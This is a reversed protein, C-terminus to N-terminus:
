FSEWEDDEKSPKPKVVNTPESKVVKQVTPKSTTKVSTKSSAPISHTTKTNVNISRGKVEKKGLFETRLVSYQLNQIQRKKSVKPIPKM